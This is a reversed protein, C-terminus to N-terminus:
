FTKHALYLGDAFGLRYINEYEQESNEALQNMLAEIRKQLEEKEVTAIIAEQEEYLQKSRGIWEKTFDAVRDSVAKQFFDKEKDSM